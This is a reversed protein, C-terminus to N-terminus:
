LERQLFHLTEIRESFIVVCEPKKGGYGFSRLLECLKELKSFHDVRNLADRLEKIKERDHRAESRDEQELKRPRAQVTTGRVPPNGNPRWRPPRTGVRPPLCGSRPPQVEPCRQSQCRHGSAEWRSGAAFRASLHRVQGPQPRSPLPPQLDRHSRANTPLAMGKGYVPWSSWLKRPPFLGIPCRAKARPPASRGPWYRASWKSKSIM